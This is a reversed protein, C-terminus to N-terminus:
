PSWSPGSPQSQAQVWHYRWRSNGVNVEILDGVEVVPQRSQDVLSVAQRQISSLDDRSLTATSITQGTRLNRVITVHNTLQPNDIVVTFAWNTSASNSPATATNDWATGNFTFDHDKMVNVIYGEAGELTFNFSDFVEPVYSIFEKTQKDLKILVTAGLETSLLKATMPTEPQLPLSIMNLGKSLSVKYNKKLSDIVGTGFVTIKQPGGSSLISIEGSIEGKSLPQFEVHIEASEGAAVLLEELSTVITFDEKESSTSILQLPAQGTNDITIKRVLERGIAVSGFSLKSNNITLIPRPKSIDSSPSLILKSKIISANGNLKGERSAASLDKATGDDFNWYGVLGEEDGNLKRDKSSQIESESRAINWLRVEDIQGNFYYGGEATQGIMLPFDSKEIKKDFPLTKDLQGQVYTKLNKGDYTTAIHHWAFLEIQVGDSMNRTNAGSGGGGNVEGEAQTNVVALVYAPRKSVIKQDGVSHPRIWAELTIQQGVEIDQSKLVELFSQNGDLELVQNKNIIGLETLSTFDAQDAKEITKGIKTQIKSRLLVDPISFKVEPVRFGESFQTNKLTVGFLNAEALKAYKLNTGTLNAGSLDAEILNASEFRAKSLDIGSLNVGSFNAKHLSMGTLKTVGSFDALSFNAATFKTFKGGADWSRINNGIFDIPTYNLDVIKVNALNAWTFDTKELIADKLNAGTLNARQLSTETLNAGSLDVGILNTNELKAGSLDAGQLSVESLDINSLNVGPKIMHGKVEKPWDNQAATKISSGLSFLVFISFLSWYKQTKM